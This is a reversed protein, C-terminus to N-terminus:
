PLKVAYLSAFTQCKGDELSIAIELGSPGAAVPNAFGEIFATGKLFLKEPVANLDSSQLIEEILELKSKVEM